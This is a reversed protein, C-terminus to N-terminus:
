VRFMGLGELGLGVFGKVWFGLCLILGGPIGVIRGRPLVLSDGDAAM